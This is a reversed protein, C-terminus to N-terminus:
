DLKAANESPHNDFIYELYNKCTLFSCDSFHEILKELNQLTNKLNQYHKLRNKLSASKVKPQKPDIEWPHIYFLYAKNTELIKRIGHRFVPAPIFRFYAGGGWPLTQNWIKMNSIPLEYFNNSIRYAIGNLNRRSVEIKGYRGHLGFSNFSSDYKYDATKAIDLVQNNVTFSPSRFGIVKTGAVDELLKKSDSM